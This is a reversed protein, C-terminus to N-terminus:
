VTIIMDHSLLHCFCRKRWQADAGQTLYYWVLAMTAGTKKCYWTLNDRLIVNCSPNMLPSGSIIDMLNERFFQTGWTEWLKIRKQHVNVVQKSVTKIKM